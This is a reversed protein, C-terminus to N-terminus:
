VTYIIGKWDSTPGSLTLLSRLGEERWCRPSFKQNLLTGGTKIHDMKAASKIVGIPQEQGGRCRRSVKPCHSHRGVGTPHPGIVSGFYISPPLPLM